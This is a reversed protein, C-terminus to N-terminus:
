YRQVPSVVYVRCLGFRPYHSGYLPSLPLEQLEYLVFAVVTASRVQYTSYQLAPAVLQTWFVCLPIIGLSTSYQIPFIVMLRQSIFRVEDVGEVTGYQGGNSGVGSTLGPRYDWDTLVFKGVFPDYPWRGGMAFLIAFLPSSWPHSM